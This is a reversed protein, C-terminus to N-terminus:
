ETCIMRISDSIAYTGYMCDRYTHIYTHIYSALLLAVSLQVLGGREAGSRAAARRGGGM